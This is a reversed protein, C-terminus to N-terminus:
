KNRGEFIFKWGYYISKKIIRIWYAASWVSPTETDGKIRVELTERDIEPIVIDIKATQPTTIVKNGDDDSVQAKFQTPVPTVVEKREITLSSVEDPREYQNKKPEREPLLGM